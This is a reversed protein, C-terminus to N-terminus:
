HSIMWPRATPFSKAGSRTKDVLRSPKGSCCGCGPGHSAKYEGLTKPAHASRENTARAKRTSAPLCSFHPATLIVRPARTGCAPCDDPEDCEAMPRMNTFPGCDDCLYEYVPM